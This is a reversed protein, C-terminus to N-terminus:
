VWSSSPSQYVQRSTRSFLPKSVSLCVSLCHVTATFASILLLTFHAARDTLLQHCHYLHSTLLSTHRHTQWKMLWVCVCVCNIPSEIVHWVVSIYHLTSHMATFHLIDPLVPQQSCWMTNLSHLLTDTCLPAQIILLQFQKMEMFRVSDNYSHTLMMLAASHISTTHLIM